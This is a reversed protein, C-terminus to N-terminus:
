DCVGDVFYFGKDRDEGLGFKKLVEGVDKCDSNWIQLKMFDDTTGRFSM